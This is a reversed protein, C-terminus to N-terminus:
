DIGELSYSVTYPLGMSSSCSEIAWLRWRNILSDHIYDKQRKPDDIWSEISIFARTALM